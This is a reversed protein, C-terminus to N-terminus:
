EDLLQVTLQLYFINGHIFGGRKDGDQPLFNHLDKDRWQSTLSTSETELSEWHIIEGGERGKVKRGERCADQWQAIDRVRPNQLYIRM